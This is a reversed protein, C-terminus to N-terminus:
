TSTSVWTFCTSSFCTSVMHMLVFFLFVCRKFKRLHWATGALAAPPALNNELCVLLFKQLASYPSSKAEWKYVMETFLILKREKLFWSLFFNCIQTNNSFPFKSIKFLYDIRNMGDM